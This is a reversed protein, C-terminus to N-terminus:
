CLSPTLCGCRPSCSGGSGSKTTKSRGGFLTVVVCRCFPVPLLGPTAHTDPPPVKICVLMPFLMMFMVCCINTCCFCAIGGAGMQSLMENPKAEKWAKQFSVGDEGYMDYFNRTEPDSLM